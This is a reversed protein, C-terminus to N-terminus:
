CPGNKKLFALVGRQIENTLTQGGSSSPPRAPPYGSIFTERSREKMDDQGSEDAHDLFFGSVPLARFRKVPAGRELLWEHAADARLIAALGGASGGGFLVDTARGLGPRSM